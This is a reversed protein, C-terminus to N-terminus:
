NSCAFGDFASNNASPNKSPSLIDESTVRNLAKLISTSEDSLKLSIKDILSIAESYTIM